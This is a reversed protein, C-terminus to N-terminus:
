SEGYMDTRFFIRFNGKQGNTKFILSLLNLQKIKM